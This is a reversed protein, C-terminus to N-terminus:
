VGIPLGSPAVYGRTWYDALTLTIMIALFLIGAAIMLYTLGSAHNIHMFYYGVLVTKISAIGLVIAIEYQMLDISGVKPNMALAVTLVTLGLLVVYIFVYLRVSSPAHTM